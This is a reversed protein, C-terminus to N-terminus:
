LLDALYVIDDDADAGLEALRARVAPVVAQSAVVLLVGDGVHGALHAFGRDSPILPSEARAFPTVYSEHTLRGGCGGGSSQELWVYCDAGEAIAREVTAAAVALQAEFAPEGALGVMVVALSEHAQEARELVMLRGARATSRWHVNRVADGPRWERASWVDLGAIVRGQGPQVGSRSPLEIPDVVPPAVVVRKEATRVLRRTLLGFAGVREVSWRGTLAEGRALPTVMLELDVYDGPALPDCYVSMPPLLERDSVLTYSVVVPLSRRRSQNHVRFRVRTPVDVVLTGDLFITYTCGRIFAATLWSAAYAGTLTCAAVQLWVDRAHAALVFLVPIAAYGISVMANAAGPRGIPQKVLAQKVLRQKM